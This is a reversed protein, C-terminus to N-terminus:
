NSQNTQDEPPQDGFRITFTEPPNEYKVLGGESNLSNLFQYISRLDVTVPTGDNSQLNINLIIFQGAQSLKSIIPSRCLNLAELASPADAEETGVIEGHETSMAKWTIQYTM